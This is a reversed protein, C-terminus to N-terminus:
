DKFFNWLYAFQLSFYTNFWNTYRTNFLGYDMFIWLSSNEWQIGRFGGTFTLLGLHVPKENLIRDYQKYYLGAGIFPLYRPHIIWAFRSGVYWCYFTNEKQYYEVGGPMPQSQIYISSGLGIQPFLFLRKYLPLYFFIESQIQYSAMESSPLSDKEWGDFGAGLSLGIGTAPVKFPYFFFLGILLFLKKKM